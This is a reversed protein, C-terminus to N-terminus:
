ASHDERQASTVVVLIAKMGEDRHRRWNNLGPPMPALFRRIAESRTEMVICIFGHPNVVAWMYKPKVNM